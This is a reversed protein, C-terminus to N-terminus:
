EVTRRLSLTDVRAVGSSPGCYVGACTQTVQRLGGPEHRSRSCGWSSSNAVTDAISM